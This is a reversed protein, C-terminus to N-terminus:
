AFGKRLKLPSLFTTVGFPITTLAQAVTNERNKYLHAILLLMAVQISKPLPADQPSDAAASYGITYQVRVADTTDDTAPWEQDTNLRLVAIADSTDLRYTAPDLTQEVGDEDLYYVGTVGLVPGSELTIEDDPFEDFVIEVTTPAIRRGLYAECWERSASIFINIIDDDEHVPPSGEGDVKCQKRAMELTIPEDTAPIIIKM